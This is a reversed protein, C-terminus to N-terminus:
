HTHVSPFLQSTKEGGDMGKEWIVAGKQVRLLESVHISIYRAVRVCVGCFLVACTALSLCACVYLVSLDIIYKCLFM